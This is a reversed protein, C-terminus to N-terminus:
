SQAQEAQKKAKEVVQPLLKAWAKQLDEDNMVGKDKLVEVLVELSAGMKMASAATTEVTHICGALDHIIMDSLADLAELATLSCRLAKDITEVVEPGLDLEKLENLHDINRELGDLAKKRNENVVKLTTGDGKAAIEDLAEPSTDISGTTSFQEESM